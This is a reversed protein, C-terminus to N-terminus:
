LRSAIKKIIKVLIERDNKETSPFPAHVQRVRPYYKETPNGKVRGLAFELRKIAAVAIKRVREHPLRRM